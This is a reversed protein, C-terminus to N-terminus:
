PSISGGRAIDETFVELRWEDVYGTSGADDSTKIRVKAGEPVLELIEIVDDKHLLYFKRAHLEAFFEALPQRADDKERELAERFVKKDAYVTLGSTLRHTAGPSAARRKAVIPSSSARMWALGSAGVVIGVALLIAVKATAKM